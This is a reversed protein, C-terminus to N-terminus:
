LVCERAWPGSECTAALREIWRKASDEEGRNDEDGRKKNNRNGKAGRGSRERGGRGRRERSYERAESKGRGNM